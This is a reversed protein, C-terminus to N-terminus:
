KHLLSVLDWAKWIGLVTILTSFCCFMVLLVGDASVGRRRDLPGLKNM